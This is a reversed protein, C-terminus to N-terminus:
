EVRSVQVSKGNSVLTMKFYGMFNKSISVRLDEGHHAYNGRRRQKWVQGNELRFRTNGSWGNFPLVLTSTIELEKEAQQVEENTEVLIPAESVTYRILWKDLAKREEASLKDLGADNFEEETMLAEVGPFEEGFASLVPCLALCALLLYGPINM